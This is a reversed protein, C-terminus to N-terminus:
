RRQQSNVIQWDRQTPIRCQRYGYTGVLDYPGVIGGAYWSVYTTGRADKYAWGRYVTYEVYYGLPNGGTRRDTPERCHISLGIKTQVHAEQWYRYVPGPAKPPPAASAGPVPVLLLAGSALTGAIVTALILSRWKARM